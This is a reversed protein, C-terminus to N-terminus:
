GKEETDDSDAYIWVKAVERLTEKPHKKAYKVVEMREKLSVANISKTTSSSDLSSSSSSDAM